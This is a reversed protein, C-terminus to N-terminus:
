RPPPPDVARKVSEYDGAAGLLPPMSVPAPAGARERVALDAAPACTTAMECGADHSAPAHHPAGDPATAHHGHAMDPREAAAPPEGALSCPAGLMGTTTQVLVLVALVLMRLPSSSRMIM